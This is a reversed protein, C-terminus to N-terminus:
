LQRPEGEVCQYFHGFISDPIQRNPTVGDSASPFVAIYTRLRLGDCRYFGWYRKPFNVEQM